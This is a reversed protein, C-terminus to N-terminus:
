RVYRIEKGIGGVKRPSVELGRQVVKDTPTAYQVGDQELTLGLLDARGGETWLDTALAIHTRSMPKSPRLPDHLPSLFTSLDPAAVNKPPTSPRPPGPPNPLRPPQLIKTSKKSSHQVPLPPPPPSLIRTSSLTSVNKENPAQLTHQLASASRLPGNQRDPVPRELDIVSLPHTRRPTQKQKKSPRALALSPSLDFDSRM